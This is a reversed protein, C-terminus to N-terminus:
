YHSYVRMYDDGTMGKMIGIARRSGILKKTVGTRDKVGIWNGRRFRCCVIHLKM